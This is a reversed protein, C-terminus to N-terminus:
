FLQALLDMESLVEHPDRLLPHLELQLVAKLVVAVVESAAVWRVAETSVV